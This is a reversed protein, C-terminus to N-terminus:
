RSFKKLRRQGFTVQLCRAIREMIEWQTPCNSDLQQGDDNQCWIEMECLLNKWKMWDIKWNWEILKISSIKDFLYSKKKMRRILLLFFYKCWVKDKMTGRTHFFCIISQILIHGHPKEGTKRLQPLSMKILLRSILINLFYESLLGADLECALINSVVRRASPIYM